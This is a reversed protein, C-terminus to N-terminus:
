KFKVETIPIGPINVDVTPPGSKSFPRYGVFGGSPLEVVKGPHGPPTIDRGGAALEDFM